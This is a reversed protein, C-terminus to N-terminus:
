GRPVEPMWGLTRNLVWFFTFLVHESYPLTASWRSADLSHGAYRRDSPFGQFYRRETRVFQPQMDRFPRSEIDCVWRIPEPSELSIEWDYFNGRAIVKVDGIPVEYVPLICSKSHHEGVVEIPCERGSAIRGELAHPIEDRMFMLQRMASKGYYLGNGWVGDARPDDQPLDRPGLRGLFWRHLPGMSGEFRPDSDPVPYTEDAV